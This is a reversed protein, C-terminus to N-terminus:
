KWDVFADDIWYKFVGKTTGYYLGGYFRAEETSGKPWTITIPSATVGNARAFVKMTADVIVVVDVRVWEDLPIKQLMRNDTTSNGEYGVLLDLGYLKIFVQQGSPADIGLLEVDDTAAGTSIAKARLSAGFSIVNRTETLPLQLFDKLGSGADGAVQLSQGKDTPVLSLLNFLSERVNWPKILDGDEFHDCFKAADCTLAVGGYGADAPDGDGGDAQPTGGDDSGEFTADTGGDSAPGAAPSSGFSSCAGIAAVCGVAGAFRSRSM